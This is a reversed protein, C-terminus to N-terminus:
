HMSAEPRLPQESVVLTPLSEQISIDGGACCLSEEVPVVLEERVLVETAEACMSTAQLVFFMLKSSRSVFYRKIM